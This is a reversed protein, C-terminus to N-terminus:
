WGWMLSRLVWGTVDEEEHRVKVWDDKKELTRFVVGQQAQRVIRFNEGPGSRINVMRRKVVMYPKEAVQDKRVWGSDDEYDIVNLWDDQEDIVSLPYGQGLEWEVEYSDGPGSRMNVMDGAISVMKAQSLAVWCLVFLITLVFQKM